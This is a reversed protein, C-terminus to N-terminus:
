ELGQFTGISSRTISNLRLLIKNLPNRHNLLPNASFQSEFLRPWVKKTQHTTRSSLSINNKQRKLCYSNCNSLLTNYWEHMRPYYLERIKEQFQTKVHILCKFETYDLGEYAVMEQLSSMKPPRKRSTRSCNRIQGLQYYNSGSNYEVRALEYGIM